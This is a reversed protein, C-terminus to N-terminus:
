ASIRAETTFIRSTSALVSDIPQKAFRKVFVSLIHVGLLEHTIKQSAFIPSEVNAYGKLWKFSAKVIFVSIKCQPVRTNHTAYLM